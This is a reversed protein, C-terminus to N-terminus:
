RKDKNVTKDLYPKAKIFLKEIKSLEKKTEEESLNTQLLDIMRVAQNYYFIGFNYNTRYDEPNISLAKTYITEIFDSLSDSQEIMFKDFVKLARTNYGGVVIDNYKIDMYKASEVEKLLAEIEAIVKKETKIDTFDLSFLDIVRNYKLNSQSDFITSENPFRNQLLGYLYKRFVFFSLSNNLIFIPKSQEYYSEILKNFNSLSKNPSLLSTLLYLEEKKNFIILSDKANTLKLNELNELEKIKEEYLTSSDALYLQSLQSILYINTYNLKKKIRKDYYSCNLNQSKFTTGCELMISKVLEDYTVSENNTRAKSNPVILLISTLIFSYISFRIM